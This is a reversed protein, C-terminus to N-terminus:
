TKPVIKYIGKNEVSLYIYGDTGMIVDRVRGIDEAVKERYIVKNNEVVLRELYEFKLSGVLLSGEWEPYVDGSVFAMGSPAISPIWYYLPQEMSPLATDKTITTGSYNKGYTIKPWGYNAGARIINIEDGGLPGHEHTWIAGTEPHRVMGQPNRHGYSFVAKVAGDTEFFPNDSPITGDDHLRYIKGGDRTLDQPNDDRRGRDGVSFYLYGENDFVIRSGFHRGVRTNPQAKYLLKVDTLKDNSLTASFLATNGGEEDSNVSSSQTFYIRKNNTFDPHLAIGMLGGQGRLYTETVKSVEYKTGEKFHIISGSKETILLSNDPLMALGWPIELEPVILELNYDIDNPTQISTDNQACSGCLVMAFFWSSFTTKM